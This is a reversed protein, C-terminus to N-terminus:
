LGDARDSDQQYELCEGVATRSQGSDFGDGIRRRLESLIPDTARLTRLHRETYEETRHHEANGGEHLTQVDM